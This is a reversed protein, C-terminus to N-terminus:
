AIEILAEAHDPCGWSGWAAISAFKMGAQETHMLRLVRKGKVPRSTTQQRLTKTNCPM